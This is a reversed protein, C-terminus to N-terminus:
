VFTQQIELRLAFCLFCITIGTGDSLAPAAKPIKDVWVGILWVRYDGQFNFGVRTARNM